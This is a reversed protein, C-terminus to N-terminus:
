KAVPRAQALAEMLHVIEKHNRTGIQTLEKLWRANRYCISEPDPILGLIIAQVMQEAGTQVDTKPRFGAERMRAVSVRYNRNDPDKTPVYGTQLAPNLQEFIKAVDTVRLNESAINYCAPRTSSARPSRARAM